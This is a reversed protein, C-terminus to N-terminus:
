LVPMRIQVWIQTWTWSPEDPRCQVLHASSWCLLAPSSSRSPHSMGRGWIGVIISRRIISRTDLGTQHSAPVFSTDHGDSQSAGTSFIQPTHLWGKVVMVELYEGDATTTDTLTGNILWISCNLFETCFFIKIFGVRSFTFIFMGQVHNGLKLAYSLGQRTLM